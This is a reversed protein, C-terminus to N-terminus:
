APSKGSGRSGCSDAPAKDCYLRLTAYSVGPVANKARDTLEPAKDDKHVLFGNFMILDQIEKDLEAKHAEPLMVYYGNKLPMPNQPVPVGEPAKSTAIVPVLHGNMIVRARSEWKGFLETVVKIAAVSIAPLTMMSLISTVAVSASEVITVFNTNTAPQTVNVAFTGVGNPLTIQKIGKTPNNAEDAKPASAGYGLTDITPLKSVDKNPTFSAITAWSLPAVVNMYPFASSADLRLHSIDTSIDGNTPRYQSIALKVLVDGDIAPLTAPPITDAYVIPQGTDPSHAYITQRGASPLAKKSKLVRDDYFNSWYGAVDVLPGQPENSAAQAFADIDVQSMAAFAAALSLADRRSMEM